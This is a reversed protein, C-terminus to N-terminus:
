FLKAKLITLAIVFATTFTLPKQSASGNKKDSSAATGPRLKDGIKNITNLAHKFFNIDCDTDKIADKVSAKLVRYNIIGADLQDGSNKPWNNTLVWVENKQSVKVDSPYNMEFPDSYVNGNKITYNTMSTRWCSLQNKNLMAYFIVGTSPDFSSAGAQGDLDRSGINVFHDYILGSTALSENRLIATSVKFEDLSSLPHFYLDAFGNKNKDSLALGYVGDSRQFPVGDVSFNGFLPNLHFFNHHVRWSHKEKMSFVILAPAGPDALYVFINGCDHDEVAISTITSESDGASKAKPIDYREILNDSRLDYALLQLKGNGIADVIWLHECRDVKIATPSVIEM